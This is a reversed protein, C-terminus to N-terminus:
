SIKMLKKGKWSWKVQCLPVKVLSKKLPEESDGAAPDTSENYVEGAAKDTGTNRNNGVVSQYHLEHFEQIGRALATTVAERKEVAKIRVSLPLEVQVADVGKWKAHKLVTYGGTYYGLKGPSPRAQSPICAIETIAPLKSLHKSLCGGFSTQGILGEKISESSTGFKRKMLKSMTFEHKVPSTVITRWNRNKCSEEFEDLNKDFYSDPISFYKLEELLKVTYKQKSSKKENGNVIENLMNGPIRYGLEVYNHPHGHGHLDVLLAAGADNNERGMHLAQSIWRHYMTFIFEGEKGRHQVAKRSIDRNVEVKNRHMHCTVVHPRMGDADLLSEIGAAIFDTGADGGYSKLPHELSGKRTELVHGSPCLLNGATTQDAGLTGAHPVSLVLNCNGINWSVVLHEEGPAFSSGSFVMWLELRGEHTVLRGYKCKLESASQHMSAVAAVEGQLGSLAVAGM